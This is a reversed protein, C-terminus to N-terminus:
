RRLGQRLRLRQRGPRPSKRLRVLGSGELAPHHAAGLKRGNACRRFRNYFKEYLKGRAIQRGDIHLLVRPIFGWPGFTALYAWYEMDGSLVLDTRQGGAQDILSGRLM